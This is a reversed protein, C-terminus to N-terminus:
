AGSDWPFLSVANQQPPRRRVRPPPLLPQGDAMRRLLDRWEKAAEAGWDTALVAAYAAIIANEEEEGAAHALHGGLARGHEALFGERDFGAPLVGGAADREARLRRRHVRDGPTRQAIGDRQWEGQREPARLAAQVESDPMRTRKSYGNPRRDVYVVWSAFPDGRRLATPPAGKGDLWLLAGMAAARWAEPRDRDLRFRRWKWRLHDRTCDPLEDWPRDLVAALDSRFAAELGDSFRITLGPWHWKTKRRRLAVIRNRAAKAEMVRWREPSIEGRRAAALRQARVQKALPPGGHRFCYLSGKVVPQHCQGAAGTPTRSACLQRGPSGIPRTVRTAAFNAAQKESWFPM